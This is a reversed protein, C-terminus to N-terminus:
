GKSKKRKILRKKSLLWLFPDEVRRPRPKKPIRSSGHPNCGLATLGFFAYNNFNVRLLNILNKGDEWGSVLAEMESNVNEFDDLDFWECHKTPYQICSSPDLLPQIADMKSFAVAIPIDIKTKPDLNNANRILNVTRTLIDAPETNEGPLGTSAPLQERVEPIQLPDLLLIIGESNYIYRNETRMVDVADLDEGATDFFVVTAVDRIRNKRPWSKGEFSLTFILPIRVSHDARASLTARIIERKRFVPDHFDRRYRKITADNLPHLSCNFSMGIENQIKNLLVSIYHSKGSEKAGIISFIMDKYDGTTYPLESHCNPCIRDSTKEHCNPCFVARLGKLRTIKQWPYKYMPPSIVRSMMRPNQLGRFKSLKLDPQPPCRKPDSVCRFEVQDVSNRTFCFPCIYNRHFLSM